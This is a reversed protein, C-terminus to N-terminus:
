RVFNRMMKTCLAIKIDTIKTKREDNFAKESVIRRWNKVM